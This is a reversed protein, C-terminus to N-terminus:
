IRTCDYQSFKSSNSMISYRRSLCQAVLMRELLDDHHKPLSRLALADKANFDIIELGSKRAMEIPDFDLISKDKQSKIALQMISVSSLYFANPGKLIETHKRSIKEPTKLLWVFIPADILINM